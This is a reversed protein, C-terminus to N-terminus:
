KRRTSGVVVSTLSLFPHRGILRVALRLETVTFLDRLGFRPRRSLLMPLAIRITEVGTALGARLAGRRRARRAHVEALDGLLDDVRNAPASWRILAEAWRPASV